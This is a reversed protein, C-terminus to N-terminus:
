ACHRSEGNLEDVSTSAIVLERPLRLVFRTPRGAQPDYFLDGGHQQALRWATPLGLGRGRGAQRGSYFPDFLHEPQAPGPGSDEVLIDLHEPGSEVGVGAWGDPPAAEVANRLLCAVATRIQRPDAHLVIPEALERCFMQVRQQAAQDRLAAMAERLLEGLDFAQKQPRQPRAFQMLGALIDHIRRTQNIITELPTRFAAHSIRLSADDAAMEENRMQKLLYQAQGSIVALPNNIEHGAGAALEALAALKKTQLRAAESQEQDQLAQHLSDVEGELQHLVPVSVLRRNAAATALLEPLLPLDTPLDWVAPAAPEDGLDRVLDDLNPAGLAAAIAETQGCVALGLGGGQRQALGVAVQTVRFLLPDAGLARATDADLDLHGITATLWSPLRWRRALRRALAAQDLGWRQRQGRVPNDRFSPDDLCAAAEGPAVAAIALWGLGALLGAVWAQEAGCCGSRQAIGEALRAQQFCARYIPRLSPESWDVFGPGPRALFRLAGELVATKRPTELLSVHIAPHTQRLLLLVCGPDHRVEGWASPTWARALRVLSAACPSLWPLHTAAAALAPAKM